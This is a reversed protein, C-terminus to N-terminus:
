KSRKSRPIKGGYQGIVLNPGKGRLCSGTATSSQSLTLECAKYFFTTKEAIDPIVIRKSFYHRSDQNYPSVLISTYINRIRRDPDILFESPRKETM